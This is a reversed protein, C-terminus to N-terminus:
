VMIPPVSGSVPEAFRMRCQHSKRGYRFVYYKCRHPGLYQRHCPESSIMSRHGPLPIRPSTMPRGCVATLVEVWVTRGTADGLDEWITRVRGFNEMAPCQIVMAPALPMATRVRKRDLFFRHLQIKSTSPVFGIRKSWDTISSCLKIHIRPKISRSNCVPRYVYPNEQM